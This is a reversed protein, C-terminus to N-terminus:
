AVGGDHLLEQVNTEDGYVQRMTPAAKAITLSPEGVPTETKACGAAIIKGVESEAGYGPSAKTGEVLKWLHGAHATYEIECGAKVLQAILEPELLAKGLKIGTIYICKHFEEPKLLPRLGLLINLKKDHGDKLAQAMVIDLRSHALRGGRFIKGSQNARIAAKVVLRARERLTQLPECVAGYTKRATALADDIMDSLEACAEAPLEEPNMGTVDPIGLVKRLAEQQEQSLDPRVLALANEAHEITQVSM